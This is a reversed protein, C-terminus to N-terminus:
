RGNQMAWLIGGQRRQDVLIELVKSELMGALKKADESTEGGDGRASTSGTTSGDGHVHVETVVTIPAAAGGYASVGLKGGPGRQLPLIGEPGAEGMLGTGGNAMPFLKAGHRVGGFAGGLSYAAMQAGGQVVAGTAASMGGSYVNSYGYTSGGLNAGSDVGGAGGMASGFLNSLVNSLLIRLEIKILEALFAKAFDKIKFKGTEAFNDLARNMENFANKWGDRTSGAVDSSEEYIEEMAANFGNRWDGQEERRREFYREENALARQEAQDIIELQRLYEQMNEEHLEGTRRALDLRDEAAQDSISDLRSLYDNVNGSHGISRLERESRSARRAEDSAIDDALKQGQKLLAQRERDIQNLKDKALLEDLSTRVAAQQAADLKTYGNEMDSIIKAAFRQTETLKETQDLDLDLTASHQAITKNLREYEAAQAKLAREAERDAQSRKPKPDAYKKAIGEEIKKQDAAISEALKADGAATAKRIAENALGRSRTIEAVRKEQNTRYNAAERDIAIAADQAQQYNARENAQKQAKVGEEQLLRMEERIKAAYERRQQSGKPGLHAYSMISSPNEVELLKKHLENFKEAGTDPRGVGLMADWAAAAGVKVYHWAKELTGLSAVVEESRKNVADAYAEMAVQAAGQADGQAQLAKINEYQAATLFHMEANLKAVADVPDEALKSFQKITDETAQGTAREMNVAAEAVLGYQTVTFKGSEVVEALAGAIQHQTNIGSATSASLEMLQDRTKGATDGAIALARSFRSAEAEGSHWAAVLTVAAAAALSVPNILGLIYGGLAKAAPGVGGFMDKLQGGQQLFVTLPNQGAQLSVAIDTFQAPLGRTAFRLENVTKTYQGSAAAAEAMSQKAKGSSKAVQEQSQATKQGASTLEDLSKSAATASTSDVAVVLKAIEDTM